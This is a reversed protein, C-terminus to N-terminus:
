RLKYRGHMESSRTMQVYVFVVKSKLEAFEKKFNVKEDTSLEGAGKATLTALVKPM